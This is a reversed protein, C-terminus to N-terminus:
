EEDAYDEDEALGFYVLSRHWTDRIPMHASSTRAPFPFGKGNIIGLRSVPEHGTARDDGGRRGRDPLGPQNGDVPTTPWAAGRARAAGRLVAPQARSGRG